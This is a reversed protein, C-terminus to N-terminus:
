ETNIRKRNCSNPLRCFLKRDILLVDSRKLSHTAAVGCSTFCRTSQDKWIASRISPMSFSRPIVCFSNALCIPRESASTHRQTPPVCLKVNAVMALIDSVNPTGSIVTVAHRVMSFISFSFCNLAASARISSNSGRVQPSSTGSSSGLFMSSVSRALRTASQSSSCTTSLSSEFSESLDVGSIMFLFNSPNVIECSVFSRTSPSEKDCSSILSSRVLYMKPYQRIGQIKKSQVMIM